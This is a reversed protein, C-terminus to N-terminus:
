IRKDENKKEEKDKEILRWYCESCVEHQIGKKDTYVIIVVDKRHCESCEANWDDRYM